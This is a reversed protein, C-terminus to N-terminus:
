HHEDAHLSYGARETRTGPTYLRARSGALKLSQGLNCICPPVRGGRQPTRGRARTHTHMRIYTYTPHVLPISPRPSSASSLTNPTPDYVVASDARRAGLRDPLKKVLQPERRRSSFSLRSGPRFWLQAMRERKSICAHMCAHAGHSVSRSRALSSFLFRRSPPPLSRSLVARVYSLLLFPSFPPPLEFSPAVIGRLLLTSLSLSFSLSPLHLSENKPEAMPM